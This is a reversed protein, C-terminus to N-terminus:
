CSKSYKFAVNVVTVVIQDGCTSCIEVFNAAYKLSVFTQFDTGRFRLKWYPFTLILVLPLIFLSIDASCTTRVAEVSEIDTMTETQTDDVSAIVASMNMSGAAFFLAAYEM